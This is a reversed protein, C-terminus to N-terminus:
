ANHVHIQNDCQLRYIYEIIIQENFIKFSNFLKCQFFKSDGNKTTLNHQLKDNGEEQKFTKVKSIVSWQSIPYREHAINWFLTSYCNRQRTPKIKVLGKKGQTVFICAEKELM